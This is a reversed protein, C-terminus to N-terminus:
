IGENYLELNNVSVDAEGVRMRKDEPHEDPNSEITLPAMNLLENGKPDTFTITLINENKTTIDKLNEFMSFAIKFSFNGPINIPEIISLPRQILVHNQEKTIDECIILYGIQLMM